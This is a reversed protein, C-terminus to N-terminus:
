ESEISAEMNGILEIFASYINAEFKSLQRIPNGDDDYAVSARVNFFDPSISDKWNNFIDTLHNLPDFEIEIMQKHEVQFKM